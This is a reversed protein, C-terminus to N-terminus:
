VDEIVGLVPRLLARRLAPSDAQRLTGDGDEDLQVLAIPLQGPEDARLGLTKLAFLDSAHGLAQISIVLEDGAKVVELRFRGDDTELARSPLPIEAGATDAALRVFEAVPTFRQRRPNFQIIEASGQSATAPRETHGRKLWSIISEDRQRSGLVQLLQDVEAMSVPPEVDVLALQHAARRWLALAETDTLSRHSM